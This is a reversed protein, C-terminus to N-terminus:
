NDIPLGFSTLKQKEREQKILGAVFLEAAKYSSRVLPGSAVYLFGMDEAIKQLEAFREPTVFEKVELHWASPQLYQGLTLM